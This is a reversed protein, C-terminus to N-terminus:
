LKPSLLFTNDGVLCFPVQIDSGPLICPEEPINLKKERLYQQIKSIEIIGDDTESSIARVYFFTFQYKYNCVAM